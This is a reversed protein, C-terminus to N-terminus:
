QSVRWSNARFSLIRKTIFNKWGGKTPDPAVKWASNLSAQLEGFVGTAGFLLAAIGLISPLVGGTVPQQAQKLLEQVQAASKPGMLTGLQSAINGQLDVPDIFSGLVLLILVLLPPLSFATYYALAAAMTQSRDDIFNTLTQKLLKLM